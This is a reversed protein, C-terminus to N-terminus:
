GIIAKMSGCGSFGRNRDTWHRSEIWWLLDGLFIVIPRRLPERILGQNWTSEIGIRFYYLWLGSSLASLNLVSSKLRVKRAKATERSVNRASSAMERQCDDALFAAFGV